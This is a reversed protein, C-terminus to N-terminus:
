DFQLLLTRIRDRHATVNIAFNLSDEGFFVGFDSIGVVRGDPLVIPGGSSGPAIMLGIQINSFGDDVRIASVIGRTVTATTDDGFVEGGPFGWALIEDTLQPTPATQWDLRRVTEPMQPVRIVAVDLAGDVASVYGIVEAGGTFRVMVSRFGGVVHANTLIETGSIVFGSGSGGPTEIIVIAQEVEPSTTALPPQAALGVSPEPQVWEVEAAADIWLVDGFQLPFNDRLDQPLTPRFQRFRETDAQWLFAANFADGLSAVAEAVPVAPGRWMVLNFGEYLPVLNPGLHVPQQWIAGEASNLWLGDGFRAGTLTNASPPLGAAYTSFAQQEGGWGLVRGIEGQVTALADQIPTPDVLTPGTWGALDWGPALTVERTADTLRFIDQLEVEGDPTTLRVGYVGPEFDAPITVQLSGNSEVVVDSIEIPLRNPALLAVGADRLARGRLSLTAGEGAPLLSPVAGDLSAALRSGPFLSVSGLDSTAFTPGDLLAGVLVDPLGDGDLDGVSLVLPGDVPPFAGASELTVINSAMISAFPFRWAELNRAPITIVLDFDSILLDLEGDLDADSIDISDPFFTRFDVFPPDPFDDTSVTEPAFPGPLITIRPGLDFGDDDLAAGSIALDDRGDSNLDGAALLEGFAIEGGPGDIRGEAAPFATIGDSTDFPGFLLGVASDDFDLPGFAIDTWGDGNLDGTALGTIALFEGELPIVLPLADMFDFLAPDGLVLELGLSSGVVLDDIGDGNLDGATLASGSLSLPLGPISVGGVLSLQTVVTEDGVGFPGPAIVVRGDGEMALPAGLSLDSVGDGNFDGIASFGLVDGGVDGFVTFSSGSFRPGAGLDIDGAEAIVLTYSGFADAFGAVVAFFDGSAPPVFILASALSGADDNFALSALRDTDLIELTSDPLSGLEVSIALAEGELAPFRYFDRDGDADLAGDTTSPAAIDIPTDASSGPTQALVGGARMLLAALTLLTAIVRLRSSAFVSTAPPAANPLALNPM